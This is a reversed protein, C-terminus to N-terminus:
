ISFLHLDPRKRGSACPHESYDDYIFVMTCYYYIPVSLFLLLPMQKCYRSPEYKYNPINKKRSCGLLFDSYFTESYVTASINQFVIEPEFLKKILQYPLKCFFFSHLSYFFIIIWIIAVWSSLHYFRPFELQSARIHIKWIRVM